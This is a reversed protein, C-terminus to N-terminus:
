SNTRQLLWEALPNWCESKARTGVIMGVHGAPPHIVHAHPIIDGLPKACDYPVVHDQKPIAIFTPQKINAPNIRRAGIKWQNRALINNQAWSLLCDRAVNATMAVGDNVWHELAIFDKAARSHIDLTLFRRFKQEFIFPDTLHFLAQIVGAPLPTEQALLSSFLHQYPEDLIFPSFERCHFDWPTALLALSGVKQPRLQASALALVGGMCYGGLAIPAGTSRYIFDIAPLLIETIYHNVGFSAETAAPEGWDIVLPYIGQSALYRLMSREKELDLIYYRNILSPVFLMVTHCNESQASGYDLLKANGKQWICPAQPMIRQYPTEIYREISTLLESNRQKAEAHLKEHLKKQNLKSKLRKKLPLLGANANALASPWSLTYGMTLALHIPLTPLHPLTPM